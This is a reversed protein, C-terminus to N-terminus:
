LASGIYLGSSLQKLIELFLILMGRMEENTQVDDVIRILEKCCVQGVLIVNRAYKYILKADLTAVSTSHLTWVQVWGTRQPLWERWRSNNFM